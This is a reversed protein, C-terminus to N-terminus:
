AASCARYPRRFPLELTFDTKGGTALYVRRRQSGDSSRRGTRAGSAPRAPRGPRQESLPVFGEALAGYRLRLGNEELRHTLTILSAYHGFIWLLAYLGLVLLSLRLWVRPARLELVLLEVPTTFAVMMIILGV